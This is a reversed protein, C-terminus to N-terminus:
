TPLVPPQDFAVFRGDGFLRFPRAWRQGTVANVYFTVLEGASFDDTLTFPAAHAEGTGYLPYMQAGEGHPSQVREQTLVRYIDGTKRHLYYGSM